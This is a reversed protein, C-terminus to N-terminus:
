DVRAVKFKCGYPNRISVTNFPERYLERFQQNAPLTMEGEGNPLTFYLPNTSDFNGVYVGHHSGSLGLHANSTNLTYTLDTGVYPSSLWNKM